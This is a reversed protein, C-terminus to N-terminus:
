FIPVHEDLRVAYHELEEPCTIRLQSADSVFFPLSGPIWVFVKGSEVDLSTSQFIPCPELFYHNAEPMNNCNLSLTQVGHQPGSGASFTVPNDTARLCSQFASSSFGQELLAQHSGLHRGAATDAAREVSFVPGSRATPKCLSAAAVLAAMAKAIPGAKGKPPPDRGKPKGKPVSGNNPDEHSYKCNRGHTCGNPM